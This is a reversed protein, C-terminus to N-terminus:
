KKFTEAIESIFIALKPRSPEFDPEIGHSKLGNSCVPGISAAMINKLAEMVVEKSGIMEAVKMVHNVQTKSTFLVVDVEGNLLARIGNKLPTIDRPLEWRYISVQMLEAGRSRLAENLKENPEGYEQIAIKKGNLDTTREDTDLAKLLEKWTNPEPVKLDIPIKRKRLAKAPKPGRAVVMVDSLMSHIEDPDYRTKMTKIMMDTGVGTMCILLDVEGALLRESFSFVASHDELPVEQMSPASIARTFHRRLLRTTTDAMRSEFTLATVEHLRNEAMANIKNSVWLYVNSFSSELYFAKKSAPIFKVVLYLIPM